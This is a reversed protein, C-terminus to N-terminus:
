RAACAGYGGPICTNGGGGNYRPAPRYVPRPPVYSHGYAAAGAALGLALGNIVAAAAAGGGDGYGGSSRSGDDGGMDSIRKSWSAHGSSSAYLFCRNYQRECNATASRIADGVNRHNWSWFCQVTGNSVGAVIAKYDKLFRYTNNYDDVCANYAQQAESDALVQNPTMIIALYAIIGGIIRYM